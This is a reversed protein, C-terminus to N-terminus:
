ARKLAEAFNIYKYMRSAWDIRQRAQQFQQMVLEENRNTSELFEKVAEFDIVEDSNPVQLCFRDDNSIDPDKYGLLFPIGHLIYERTKLSCAEELGQRYLCLTSVALHCQKVIHPADETGLFGYEFLVLSTPIQYKNSLRSGVVHLEIQINPEAHLWAELSSLLRDVGHWPVDHSIAFYIALRKGDYKPRSVWSGVSEKARAGNPVVISPGLFSDLKKLESTVFIKGDITMNLLGVSCRAMNLIAFNKLGIKHNLMASFKSHVEVIVKFRRMILAGILFPTVLPQRLFVIEYNLRNLFSVIYLPYYIISLPWPLNPMRLVRLRGLDGGYNALKENSTAIFVDIDLECHELAEKQQALKVLVGSAPNIWNVYAIKMSIISDFDAPKDRVYGCATENDVSRM